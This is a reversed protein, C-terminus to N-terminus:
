TSSYPGEFWARHPWDDRTAALGARVPNDLVYEIKHQLQLSNRIRHEFFRRQWTIKFERALWGKFYRITEEPVTEGYLVMHIHDPMILILLCGWVHKEHYHRAADLIGQAVDPLVLFNSGRPRACITIFFYHISDPVSRPVLHNLPKRQPLQAM